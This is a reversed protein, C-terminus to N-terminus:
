FQNPSYRERLERRVQEIGERTGQAVASAVDVNSSPQHVAVAVQVTVDGGFAPAGAGVARPSGTDGISGALAPLSRTRSSTSAVAQSTTVKPYVAHLHRGAGSGHFAAYGGLGMLRARYAPLGQGSLDLAQGGQHQGSGPGHGGGGTLANTVQIGPGAIASHLALTGGLARPSGTDGFTGGVSRRPNPDYDDSFSGILNKVGKLPDKNDGVFVGGILKATERLATLNTSDSFFGALRDFLDAVTQLIPLLNDRFARAIDTVLPTAVVLGGILIPLLDVAIQTIQPILPLLVDVLELFSDILQPLQPIVLAFAAVLQDGIIPLLPTLAILLDSIGQALIPVVPLLGTLLDSALQGVVPALQAIAPTLASFVQLLTNGLLPILAVAIPLLPTIADIVGLFAEGLQPLYPAIADVAALLQEGLFQAIVGVHPALAILAAALAQAGHILVDGLVPALQEVIPILAQFVGALGVGIAEAVDGVLPALESLLTLLDNVAGLVVLGPQGLAELLDLLTRGFGTLFEGVPGMAQEVYGIFQQLRGTSGDAFARFDSLVGGLAANVVTSLPSFAQFLLAVSGTLSILGGTFSNLLPAQASLFALFAQGGPGAFATALQVAAVGTATGLASVLDTVGPLTTVLIELAQQLGPLTALQAVGRLQDLVPRLSFVYTAFQQGTDTLQAFAENIKDMDGSALASVAGGVGSLALVLVGLSAVLVSAAGGASLFGATLVSFVPVAAPILTAFVLVLLKMSTRVGAIGGILGRTGRLAANLGLVTATMRATARTAQAVERAYGAVARAAARAAAANARATAAAAREAAAQARLADRASRTAEAQRRAAEAAARAQAAQVRTAAASRIAAREMRELADASRRSSEAVVNLALRLQGLQERIEAVPRSVEDRLAARIVLEDVPGPV